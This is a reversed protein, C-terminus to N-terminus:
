PRRGPPVAPLLGGIMPPFSPLLHHYAHKFHARAWEEIGIPGFVPHTRIVDPAASSQQVFRDVEVRLVARAETLNVHRLPPLGAALVPNMFEHTTPRNNYLFAKIRERQAEPVLCEVHVQGTSIEFTWILHEVMQQATMKGWGPQSDDRFAALADCLLQHFFTERLKSDNVDFPITIMSNQKKVGRQQFAIAAKLYAVILCHPKDFSSSHQPLFLTAMFFRHDSLEVISVEGNSDVGAVKLGGAGIKSRYEPNLGYNCRFEEVIEETGYVRHALTDPMITITQVQGVLSCSLKNIVLHSANPSTEEHEADHIGLM